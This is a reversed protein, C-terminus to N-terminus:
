NLLNLLGQLGALTTQQRIAHRDGEFCFLESICAIGQETQYAWAIWVTGVPKDPTGGGPGAIGSCAIAYNAKSHALAGHGMQEVCAQSVAGMDALLSASVNLLDQKAANSYTVFGRDFWASSGALDTVVQAIMGGTCSEATALWAQKALMREALVTVSAAIQRDINM